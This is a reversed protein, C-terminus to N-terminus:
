RPLPTAPSPNRASSGGGANRDGSQATRAGSRSRKSTAKPNPKRDDPQAAEKQDAAPQKPVGQASALQSFSATVVASLFYPFVKRM